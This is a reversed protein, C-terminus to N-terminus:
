IRPSLIASMAFFVRSFISYVNQVSGGGGPSMLSSCSLRLIEVSRLSNGPLLLFDTKDFLGKWVWRYHGESSRTSSRWINGNLVAAVICLATTVSHVV